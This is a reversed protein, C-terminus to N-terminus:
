QAGIPKKYFEALKKLRKIESQIEQMLKKREQQRKEEKLYEFLYENASNFFFRKQLYKENPMYEKSLKQHEYCKGNSLLGILILIFVLHM